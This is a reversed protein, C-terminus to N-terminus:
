GVHAEHDPLLEVIRQRIGARDCREALARLEAVVRVPDFGSPHSPRAVLIQAHPGPSTPDTDALYQERLKEGPRLGTEVIEVPDVSEPSSLTILNRALEEIRIAEGMDLVFVEGGHGEAMGQVVLMAAERITM